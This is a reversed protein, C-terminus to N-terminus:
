QFTAYIFTCCSATKHVTETKTKMTYSHWHSWNRDKDEHHLQTLTILKQRQRWPTATDTHDTETKTKKTYSHWHSWNRDKDEHHLQTLTILKQRQRWPTARDTHDTETQRWPTILSHAPCILFLSEIRQLYLFKLYQQCGACQRPPKQLKRNMSIFQPQSSKYPTTSGTCSASEGMHLASTLFPCLWVEERGHANVPHVNIVM